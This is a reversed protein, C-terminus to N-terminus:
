RRDGWVRVTHSGIHGRNRAYYAQLAVRADSLAQTTEVSYCYDYAVLLRACEMVRDMLDIYDHSSASRYQVSQRRYGDVVLEITDADLYAIQLVVTQETM